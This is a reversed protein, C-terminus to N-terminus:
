LASCMVKEEDLYAKGTNLNRDGTQGNKGGSLVKSEDKKM